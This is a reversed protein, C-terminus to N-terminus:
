TSRGVTGCLLVALVFGLFYIYGRGEIKLLFVKGKSITAINLIQVFWKERVCALTQRWCHANSNDAADVEVCFRKKTPDLAFGGSCPLHTELFTGPSLFAPDRLNTSLFALLFQKSVTTVLCSASLTSSGVGGPTKGYTRPGYADIYM